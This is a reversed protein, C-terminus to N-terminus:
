EDSDDEFNELYEELFEYSFYEFKSGDFTIENYEETVVVVIVETHDDYEYGALDNVGAIYFYYTGEEEILQDKFEVLGDEDNQAEDLVEMDENLLMFTFRADKPEDLDVHVTTCFSIENGKLPNEEDNEEVVEPEEEEEEIIPEVIVEEEDEISCDEDEEDYCVANIEDEEDMFDEEDEVDFCEEEEYFPEEDESYEVTEEVIGRRISLKEKILEEASVASDFSMGAFCVTQGALVVSLIVALYIPIMRTKKM